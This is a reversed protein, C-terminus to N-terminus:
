KKVLGTTGTYYQLCGPPGGVDEQGCTYQAVYIDWQPTASTSGGNNGQPPSVPPTNGTGGTGGSGPVNGSAGGGSGGPGGIGPSNNSGFGGGASTSGMSNPDVRKYM